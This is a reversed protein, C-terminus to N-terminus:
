PALNQPLIFRKLAVGEPDRFVLLVQDPYFTLDAYGFTDARYWLSTESVHDFPTQSLVGGFAGVVTYFVGHHTALEMHHNHGAISLDVRHRELIPAILTTTEPHDFWPVGLIYQGSSYFFCHSLVVVWDERPISALEEELWAEVDPGWDEVGWLLNLKFFHVPGLDIRQWLTQRATEPTADPILYRLFKSRGNMLDDHNGMLPVVPVRSFEAFAERAALWHADVFGFETIDGLVFFAHFAPETENVSRIISKTAEANSEARGFHPDSSVAIRLPHDWTLDEFPEYRDDSAIPRYAAAPDQAEVDVPVWLTYYDPLAWVVTCSFILILCLFCRIFSRRM